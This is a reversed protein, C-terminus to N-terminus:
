VPITLMPVTTCRVVKESVSGFDFHSESGKSTMVVVDIKEKQILKLIEKAPDGVAIHKIYLPCADLFKECLEDL